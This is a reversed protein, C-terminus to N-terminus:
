VLDQLLALAPAVRIGDPPQDDKRGTTCIQWAEVAPFKAGLYRLGGDVDTGLWKCEVAKVPRGHETVAFDVERHDLGRFYRLDLARGAADQEFHVWKLSLPVSKVALAPLVQRYSM